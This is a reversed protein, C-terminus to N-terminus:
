PSLHIPKLDKLSGTLPLDPNAPCAAFLEAERIPWKRLLQRTVRNRGRTQRSEFKLLFMRYNRFLAPIIKSSLSKAGIYIKKECLDSASRAAPTFSTRASVLYLSIKLQRSMQRM